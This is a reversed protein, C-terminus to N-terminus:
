PSRRWAPRSARPRRSPSPRLGRWARTAADTRPARAVGDPPTAHHPGEGVRGDVRVDDVAQDVQRAPRRRGPLLWPTPRRRARPRRASRRAVPVDRQGASFRSSKPHGPSTVAGTSSRPGRARRCTSRASRRARCPRGRGRRRRPRAPRHRVPPDVAAHRHLVQQEAGDVGPEARAEEPQEVVLGRHEGREADGVPQRARPVSRARGGRARRAPGRRGLRGRRVTSSTRWRPPQHADGSVAPRRHGTRGHSVQRVM